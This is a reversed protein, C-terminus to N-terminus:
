CLKKKWTTDMGKKVNNKSTKNCNVCSKANVALDTLFRVHLLYFDM